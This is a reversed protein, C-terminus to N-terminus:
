RNAHTFYFESTPNLDAAYVMSDVRDDHQGNPFAVAEQEYADLGPASRLHYVKGAEYRAALARARTVKDRDPHIARAPLRTADLVERVFTSQFATAEINLVVLQRPVEPAGTAGAFAPPLRGLSCLLCPSELGIRDPVGDKLGTLWTRHGEDLRDAYSGVVYLNGADDECMEGLATYDSREKSSSALDLGARRSVGPPLADVYQFWTRKFINGGMGAPDNQYQLDFIASGLEARKALLREASWYGPWLAQNDEALAQRLHIPWGKRRLEAYLDDEHWRTGLVIIQGTPTLMPEIVSWFRESAKQRQAATACEDPGILDDALLLDFRPGPKLGYLSSASVTADKEAYGEAGRVTWSAETWKRSVVGGRAWPFVEAFRGGEVISRVARSRKVADDESATAIGIKLRGASVGIRRALHHIAGTTKAHGRPLLLVSRADRAAFRYAARLHEPFRLDSVYEAFAGDDCAALERLFARYTM